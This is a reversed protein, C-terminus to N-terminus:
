NLKPLSALDFQSKASDKSAKQGPKAGGRAGGTRGGRAGGTRGGRPTRAGDRPARPARPAGGRAGGRSGREESLLPPAASDDLEITQVEKRAKTSPKKRPEPAAAADRKAETSEATEAAAAPASAAAKKSRTSLSAAIERQQQNYQELTLKPAEPEAPVTEPEESAAKAEQQAIEEGAAEEKPEQNEDGWGARTRKATDRKNSRPVRDTRESRRSHHSAAGEKVPVRRNSARGGDKNEKFIRDNSPAAPSKKRAKGPDAKPNVDAKKSSTTNAVKPTHDLHVAGTGVAPSSDDGLVAFFNPTATSM